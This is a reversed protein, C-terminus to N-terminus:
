HRYGKWTGGYRYQDSKQCSPLCDACVFLWEKGKRIQIRYMVDSDQKCLPCNKTKM